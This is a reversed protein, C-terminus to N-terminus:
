ITGNSEGRIVERDITEHIQKIKAKINKGLSQTVGMAVISILMLIMLYETLGQGSNHKTKKLM